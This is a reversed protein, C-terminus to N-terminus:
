LSPGRLTVREDLETQLSVAVVSISSGASLVVSCPAAQSLFGWEEGYVAAFDLEISHEKVPYVDWVPHQVEYRLLRGDRGKGFGWKHEKFFHETSSEPPRTAPKAGTVRLTHDRGAFRLTYRM